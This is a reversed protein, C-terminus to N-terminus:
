GVLLLGIRYLYKSPPFKLSIGYKKATKVVDCGAAELPVRAAQPYICKPGCKDCLKCSGGIFSLTYYNNLKYAKKELELLIKHLTVSSEKRQIPFEDDTIKRRIIVFLGFDYNKMLKEYDLDPIKPPCTHQNNYKSCTVCKMKVKDDFVIESPLIKFVDSAGLKLGEAKLSNLDGFVKKANKFEKIQDVKMWKFGKTPLIHTSYNNSLIKIVNEYPMKTLDQSLNDIMDFFKKSTESSFKSLGTFVDYGKDELGEKSRKIDLIKDGEKKIIMDEAEINKKFDVLLINEKDLKALKFVLEPDCIVDGDILLFDEDYVFDKVLSVSSLTGSNEYDENKVYKLDMNKYTRGLKNIILESNHGVVLIVEKINLSSLNDLMNEIITKDKLHLLCQHSNETLPFFKKEKGAVLIVAKM